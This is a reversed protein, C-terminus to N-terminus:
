TGMRLQTPDLVLYRAFRGKKRSGDDSVIVIRLQGDLIAPCIGEAHEFGPVGDVQVRQAPDDPQGRWFWLKFQVSESTAPGSIVLYGNLQPMASMGRIGHGGLDLTILNSSIVPAAGADFMAAYNDVSAILARHQHLPSRFGVWLQHSDPSFALAEINLGNDDKVDRIKAAAALLPHADLLAPQLDVVVQPAVIQDHEISFRVLKNRAKKKDGDGDRSHSTIAYLHGSADLAMGELDDLKRFGEHASTRTALPISSVEGNPHLTVLSFPHQKEDEAVLFRGDALQQIASPEYIGTLEQFSPLSSSTM